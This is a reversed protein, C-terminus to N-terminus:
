LGHFGVVITLLQNHRYVNEEDGTTKLNVTGAGCGRKGVGGCMKKEDASKADKNM